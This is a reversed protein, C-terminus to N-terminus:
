LPKNGLILTLWGGIMSILIVFLAMYLIKSYIYKTEFLLCSSSGYRFCRQASLYLFITYAVFVTYLLVFFPILALIVVLLGGTGFLRFILSVTVGFTYVRHILILISIPSSFYHLSCLYILLMVFLNTFIQALIYSYQGYSVLMKYYSNNYQNLAVVPNHAIIGARLGVILTVIFLIVAFIYKKRNCAIHEKIDEIIGHKNVFVLNM